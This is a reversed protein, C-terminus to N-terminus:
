SEIGYARRDGRGVGLDDSSWQFRADIPLAPSSGSSDYLLKCLFPTIGAALMNIATGAVIQDARLTIM